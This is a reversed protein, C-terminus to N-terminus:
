IDFNPIFNCIFIYHNSGNYLVKYKNNIVLKGQQLTIEFQSSNNKLLMYNCNHPVNIVYLINAGVWNLAFDLNYSTSFPYDYNIEDTNYILNLMDITDTRYEARYTLFNNTCIPLPICQCFDNFLWRNDDLFYKDKKLVLLGNEKKYLSVFMSLAIDNQFELLKKSLSLHEYMNVLELANDNYPIESYNLIPCDYNVKKINPDNSNVFYYTDDFGIFVHSQKVKCFSDYIVEKGNYSYLNYEVLDNTSITSLYNEILSM